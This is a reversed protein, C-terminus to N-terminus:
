RSPDTSTPRSVLEFTWWGEKPDTTDDHGLKRARARWVERLEIPDSVREITVLHVQDGVRVRGRPDIEVMGAWRKRACQSCSVFLRGAWAMCNVTMSRPADPRVELECRPV